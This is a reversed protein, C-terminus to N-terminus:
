RCGRVDLLRRTSIGLHIYYEVTRVCSNSRYDRRLERTIENWWEDDFYIYDYGAQAVRRADPSAVLAEWEPLPMFFDQYAQGGGRGFLTIARHPINDLVQTGPDLRDWYKRGMYIDEDSVFTTQLPRPIALLQFALLVVGGFVVVGYIGGLLGRVWRGGRSAANWALPYGLVMWIFLAAGSMHTIDRDREVYQVVMTALFGIAAGLGLAPYVWDRRHLRKWTWYIVWPALFLVPGTEALGVLWGGSDALSLAGLHASVLALPWRLSFGIFGSGATASGGLSLEVWRRLMETLLGGSLFALLTSLILMIAWQLIWHSARARGADSAKATLKRNFFSRLTLAYVLIVLFLGAVLPVFLYEATLGLSAVLFSYIALEWGNWTRRALLLLLFLTALPLAGSGGLAMVGPTFIGNVFAFPFHLPGDGEVLWPRTMNVFLDPGSFASAGQLQVQLSVAKLWDFPFFLLLWRAGGGFLALGAGLWAGAHSMTVRRFWLWGLVGTLALTFAKSADFASWVFLGAQRVLSAAFLHLGYHYAMRSATNLYFHPPVDGAAMVSVLPLNHYDDFIALGRNIAAFLAALAVLAVLQPWARLDGLPLFPGRKSRWAVVGGVLLVLTAGGWWAVMLPLVRALLNSWAIFLLMGTAGGTLLRERSRLRFAHSCILWGGVWWLACM